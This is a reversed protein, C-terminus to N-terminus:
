QLGIIHTHTNVVINYAIYKNLEIFYIHLQVTITTLSYFLINTQLKNKKKNITTHTHSRSAKRLDCVESRQNEILKELKNRENKNRLFLVPHDLAFGCCKKKKKTRFYDPEM